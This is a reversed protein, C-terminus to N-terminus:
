ILNQTQSLVREYMAGWSIVMAAISTLLTRPEKFETHSMFFNQDLGLNDTGHYTFSHQTTFTKTNQYSACSVLSVVIAFFFSYKM